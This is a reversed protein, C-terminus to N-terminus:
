RELAAAAAVVEVAPAHILRSEHKISLAGERFQMARVAAAHHIAGRRRKRRRRRRTAGGGSRKLRIPFIERSRKRGRVEGGCDGGNLWGGCM